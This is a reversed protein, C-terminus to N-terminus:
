LVPPYKMRYMFAATQDRQVGWSPRFMVVGNGLDWGTTIRQSELWSIQKYFTHGTGVDAFKSVAPATYDPSGSARYLFAAMQDRQVTQAPRFTVVGNGEDWGTTIGQAEMWSIEKYFTHWTPVDRFKSV